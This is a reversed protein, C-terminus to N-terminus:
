SPAPSPSPSGASPPPVTVGPLAQPSGGFALTTLASQGLATVAWRRAVGPGVAAVLAGYQEVCAGETRLAEASIATRTTLGSPLRYSPEAAVPDGGLATVLRRLDDRRAVHVDYATALDSRFSAPELDAARGGLVGYTHVAAHEGALTQQVADLDTTM